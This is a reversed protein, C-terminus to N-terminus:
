NVKRPLPIGNSPSTAQYQYQPASGQQYVQPQNFGLDKSRQWFQEDGFHYVLLIVQKPPIKGFLKKKSTLDDDTVQRWMGNEYVVENAEIFFPRPLTTFVEGINVEGRGPVKVKLDREIYIMVPSEEYVTDKGTITVKRATMQWMKLTVKKSIVIDAIRPVPFELMQCYYVKKSTSKKAEAQAHLPAPNIAMWVLAVIFLLVKKM